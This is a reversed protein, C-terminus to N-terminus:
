RMWSQGGGGYFDEEEPEEPIDRKHGMIIPELAYRIADWCHNHKDILVPLVDGSLKDTKYSWLRAEEATHTCRPHIVIQDFGRLYGIGDEVSGKWKVAGCFRPWGNRVLYSITEPRASDARTVYDRAREIGDFLASLHDTEVNLGYAEHEVYLKREWIWCRVLVSPDVSFGFDTGQYPGDWYQGPEFSEVTYKGKLVQADSMRRYKGGWVHAAAEPDVRYLYDKEAKLVEPFWPNDHWNMEVIACDPPPNQVFRVDVPDKPDEPNYTVWIESGPKRVTPILLEWSRDSVTHAEEIWAIDVGEFSKISEATMNGLGRFLFETGNKGRIESKLVDYYSVLGLMEIQDVLLKYSSDAISKQIERGCFIRRPTSIGHALLGRAVGWSKASGRGGRFIKYRHPAFLPEVMKQPIDINIESM